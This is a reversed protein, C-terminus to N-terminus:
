AQEGVGERVEVARGKGKGKWKRMGEALPLVADARRESKRYVQNGEDGESVTADSIWRDETMERWGVKRAARRTLMGSIIRREADITRLGAYARDERDKWTFYGGIGEDDSVTADSGEMESGASAAREERRQMMEEDTMGEWEAPWFGGIPPVTKGYLAENAMNYLIAAGQHARFNEEERM